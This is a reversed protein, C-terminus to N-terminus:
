GIDNKKNHGTNSRSNFSMTTTHLCGKASFVSVPTRAHAKYPQTKKESRSKKTKYSDQASSKVTGTSHLRCSCRFRCCHHTARSSNPPRGFLLCCHNQSLQEQAGTHPELHYHHAIWHELHFKQLHWRRHASLPTWHQSLGERSRSEISPYLHRRTESTKWHSSPWEAASHRWGVREEPSCSLQLNLIAPLINRQRACPANM